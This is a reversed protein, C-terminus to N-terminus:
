RSKLAELVDNLKNETAVVLAEAHAQMKVLLKAIREIALRCTCLPSPHVYYVHLVDQITSIFLLLFRLVLVM